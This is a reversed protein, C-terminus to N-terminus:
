VILEAGLGESNSRRIGLSGLLNESGAQRVTFGGLLEESASRRIELAGFLEQSAAQRSILGALLEASGIQRSTFEAPLEQLVSRRIVLEAALNQSAAGRIVFEGPLNGSGQGVEFTAPLEESGPQRVVLEGPLSQIAQGDFSAALDRSADLLGVEFGCALEQSGAAAAAAERGRLLEYWINQTEQTGIELLWSAETDPDFTHSGTFETFGTVKVNFSIATAVGADLLTFTTGDISDSANLYVNARDLTVSFDRIPAIVETRNNEGIRGGALGVWTDPDGASYTDRYFQLLIFSGGESTFRSSATELYIYRTGGTAPNNGEIIIFQNRTLTDSNTTDEFTGTTGPVSIAQNGRGVGFIYSYFTQTNKSNENTPIYIRLNDWVYDDNIRVYTGAASVDWVSLTGAISIYATAGDILGIGGAVSAGFQLYTVGRTDDEVTYALMSTVVGLGAGVASADGETAVDDGTTVSDTNVTDEYYGTL